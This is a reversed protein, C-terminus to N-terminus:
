RVRVDHLFVQAQEAEHADVEQKEVERVQYHVLVFQARSNRSVPLILRLPYSGGGPEHRKEVRIGDRFQLLKVRFKVAVGSVPRM